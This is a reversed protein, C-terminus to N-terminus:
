GQAVGADTSLYPPLTLRALAIGFLPTSQLREPGPLNLTSGMPFNRLCGDGEAFRPLAWVPKGLVRELETKSGQIECRAEEDSCLSLVPHTLTHAGVSM